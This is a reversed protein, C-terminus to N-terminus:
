ETREKSIEEPRWNFTGSNEAIVFLVKIVIPALLINLSFHSSCRVHFILKSFASDLYDQKNPRQKHPSYGCGFLRSNKCPAM